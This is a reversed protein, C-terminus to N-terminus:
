DIIISLMQSSFLTWLVVHTCVNPRSHTHIAPFVVGVALSHFILPYLFITLSLCATLNIPLCVCVSLSVFHSIPYIIPHFHFLLVPFHAVFLLLFQSPHPKCPPCPTCPPSHDRPSAPSGTTMCHCCVSPAWVQLPVTTLVASRTAGYCAPFM